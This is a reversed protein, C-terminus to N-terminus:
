PHSCQAGPHQEPDEEGRQFWPIRPWPGPVCFPVPFAQPLSSLVSDKRTVFAVNIMHEM